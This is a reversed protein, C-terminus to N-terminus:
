RSGHPGKRETPAYDQCELLDLLERGTQNLLMRIRRDNFHPQWTSEAISDGVVFVSAVEVKRRCAALMYLASAEMEVVDAGKALFAHRKQVTERYPADTTWATGEKCFVGQSSLWAQVQKALPQTARFIDRGVVYHRSTGEDSFAKTCVIVDGVETANTITAATGLSLFRRAGFAILEECKAVVAPAGIGSQGVLATQGGKLIVVDGTRKSILGGRALEGALAKFHTNDYCLFV